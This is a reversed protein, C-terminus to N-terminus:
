CRKVIAKSKSDIYEIVSCKYKTNAAFIHYNEGVKVLHDLSARIYIQNKGSMMFQFFEDDYSKPSYKIQSIESIISDDLQNLKEIMKNRLKKDVKGILEPTLARYKKNTASDFRLKNKNEDFFYYKKDIKKNFLLRTEKVEIKLTSFIKKDVKVESFLNSKNLRNKILFSPNLLSFQGQSVSALEKIQLESYRENNSISIDNIKSIPLLLYIILVIFLVFIIIKKNKNKRQQEQQASKIKQFYEIDYLSNKKM